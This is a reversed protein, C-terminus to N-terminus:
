ILSTGEGYENKKKEQAKLRRRELSDSKLRLIVNILRTGEGYEHLVYHAPRRQVKELM